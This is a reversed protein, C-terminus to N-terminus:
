SSAETAAVGSMTSNASPGVVREAGTGPTSIPVASSLTPPAAAVASWALAADVHAASVSADPGPRKLVSTESPPPM